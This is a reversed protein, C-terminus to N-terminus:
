KILFEEQTEMNRFTVFVPFRLSPKGEQNTTKEFYQTKVYEGIYKDKNDWYEQRQEDSFGSGINVTSGEYEVVFAGLRGEHRGTGEEMAVLKLEIDEMKKIKLLNKTRKYEYPSDGNRYMLGEWNNKNCLESLKSMDEDQRAIFINSYNTPILSYDLSEYNLNAYKDLMDKYVQKFPKYPEKSLFNEKPLMDFIVYCINEWGYKLEESQCLSIGKQFDEIGNEFYLCEGDLIMSEDELMQSIQDLIITLPKPYCENNSRSYAKGEKIYMRKGDFKRSYLGNAFVQDEWKNALQVQPEECFGPWIKQFKKVSMNLRLDKFLVKKLFDRYINDFDNIFSVINEVDEDKASKISSLYDLKTKFRNWDDQDFNSRIAPFKPNDFKNYKGEDIKFLKHPDYTYELVQKLLDSKKYQLHMIQANGSMTRSEDLIQLIIDM